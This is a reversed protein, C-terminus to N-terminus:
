VQLLFDIDAGGLWADSLAAYDPGAGQLEVALRRLMDRVRHEADTVYVEALLQTEARDISRALVATMTFLESAIQAILIVVHERAFLEKPDPYKEVLEICTGSLESYLDATIALHRQNASSLGEADLRSAVPASADSYFRALLIQGAQNDIQFDVNATTRLIRADRLYREVPLPNAGRRLKSAATEVGEGGLLTATRDAIRWALRAALPKAAIQEFLTDPSPSLLAWQAITEVAFLEALTLSVRRQVEDYRALPLGDIRRRNVFDRSWEACRRGLALAMSVVNFIRAEVAVPTLTRLREPEEVGTLVHEVPVRVNDFRMEGDPFGRYGIFEIDSSVQFGPTSTDLFPFVVAPEGGIEATASVAILDAIPANGTFLKRGNLIYASGDEDLTATLSSFRNNQGDPSSDGFACIVGAAIRETLYDRLPSPELVRLIANPGVTNTIALTNAAAISWMAIRELVRLLTYADLNFGGMDVPQRLRSYGRHRIAEVLGDPFEGTEELEEGTIFARFATDVEDIVDDGARLYDAGPEPFPRMVEWPMRGARLASLFTEDTTRVTTDIYGLKIQEVSM